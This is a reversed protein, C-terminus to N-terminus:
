RKKREQDHSKSFQKLIDGLTNWTSAPIQVYTRVCKNGSDAQWRMTKLIQGLFVAEKQMAPFSVKLVEPGQQRWKDLDDRLLLEGGAKDVNLSLALAVGGGEPRMEFVFSRPCARLKLNEALFKRGEAPIEGIFMAFADAPIANLATQIWPPNYGSLVDPSSKGVKPFVFWPLRELARVHQAPKADPRLTSALFLHQDDYIGIAFPLQPGSIRASRGTVFNLNKEEVQVTDASDRRIFDIIRKRGDLALGEFHVLVRANETKTEEYYALSMGDIRIRGLNEATLRDATEDELILHLFGQTIPDDLTLSGFSKFDLAGFLAAEGPLWSLARRWPSDAPNGTNIPPIAPYEITSPNNTPPAVLKGTSQGVAKATM